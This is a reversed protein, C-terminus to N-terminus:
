SLGAQTTPVKRVHHSDSGGLWRRVRDTIRQRISRQESSPPAPPADMLRSAVAVCEDCIHVGPGAVLKAVEADSKKCFSCRLKWLKAM